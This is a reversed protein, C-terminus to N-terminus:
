WPNYTAITDLALATATNPVVTVTQMQGASFTTPDAMTTVHCGSYTMELYRTTSTQTHMFANFSSGGIFHKDYFTKAWTTNGEMTWEISYDRMDPYPQSVYASGNQWPESVINNNLSFTSSRIHTVKSSTGSPLCWFTKNSLYPKTTAATVATVAGSTYNIRAGALTLDCTIFDAEPLNITMSNVMGGTMTKIHNLGTPNFQKADEIQFSNFPASTGSTFANSNNSNTPTMTHSYATGSADVCSGLAFALMRWDQPFYSITGTAREVTDHKQQVDRTQGENYRMSQRGPDRVLDCSQVMGIWQGTGSPNAYTGSEFVLCTQSQDGMLRGM